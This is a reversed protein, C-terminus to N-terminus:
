TVFQVMFITNKIGPQVTHLYIPGTCSIGPGIADALLSSESSDVCISLSAMAKAARM